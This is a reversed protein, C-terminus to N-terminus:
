GAQGVTGSVTNHCMDLTRWQTCVTYGYYLILKSILTAPVELQIQVRGKCIAGSGLIMVGYDLSYFIGNRKKRIKIIPHCKRKQKDM